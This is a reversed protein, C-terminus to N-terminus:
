TGGARRVCPCIAWSDSVSSQLLGNFMGHNDTAEPWFPPKVCTGGVAYLRARDDLRNTLRPVRPPDEVNTKRRISRPPDQGSLFSSREQSARPCRGVGAFTM